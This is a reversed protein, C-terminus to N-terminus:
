GCSLLQHLLYFNSLYKNKEILSPDSLVTVLPFISIISFMEIIGFGIMLIILFLAQKKERRSLLNWIKKYTDLM